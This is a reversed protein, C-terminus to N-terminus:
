SAEENLLERFTRLTSRASEADAKAAEAELLASEKEVALAAIQDQQSQYLGNDVMSRIKNLLDTDSLPERLGPEGRSHRSNEWALAVYALHKSAEGINTWDIGEAIATAIRDALSELREETPQYSPSEVPVEVGKHSGRNREDERVHKGWHAAMSRPANGVFDCRACIYTTTGDSWDRQTAINSAYGGLTGGKSIMPSESMLKIPEVTEEKELPASIMAEVEDLAATMEAVKVDAARSWQEQYREQYADMNKEDTADPVLLPNAYQLIKKMMRNVPGSGKKSTLHIKQHVNPEPAILTVTNDSKVMFTWGLSVAAAIVGHIERKFARPIADPTFDRYTYTTAM